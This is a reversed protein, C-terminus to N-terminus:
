LDHGHSEDIRVIHEGPDCHNLMQVDVERHLAHPDIEMRDCNHCQMQRDAFAARDRCERYYVCNTCAFVRAAQASRRDKREKASLIKRAGM